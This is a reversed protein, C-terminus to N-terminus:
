RSGVRAPVLRPAARARTGSLAVFAAAVLGTAAMMIVAHPAAVANVLPAAAVAAMMTTTFFASSLAFVRGHYAPDAERQVITGFLVDTTGDLFGIFALVLLATPAHDTCALAIFLASMLLLAIGIWRGGSRGVHALGAAAEGAALGAALAALGFGYASPGLGVQDDLFRPLSANTLGTAVTAAGFAGV